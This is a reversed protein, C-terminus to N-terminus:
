SRKCGEGPLCTPCRTPDAEPTFTFQRIGDASEAVSVYGQITRARYRFRAPITSFTDPISCRVIYATGFPLRQPNHPNPEIVAHARRTFGGNPYALDEPELWTSGLWQARPHFPRKM